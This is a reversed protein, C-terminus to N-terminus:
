VQTKNEIKSHQCSPLLLLCALLSAFLFIKTNKQLFHKLLPPSSFLLCICIFLFIFILALLHYNIHLYKIPKPSAEGAVAGSIRGAVQSSHQSKRLSSLIICYLLSLYKGWNLVLTILGSPSGCLVKNAAGVCVFAFIQVWHSCSPQWDGQRNSALIVESLSLYILLNCFFLFYFQLLTNKSKIYSLYIVRSGYNESSAEREFVYCVTPLCIVEPCDISFRM